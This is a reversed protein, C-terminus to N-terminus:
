GTTFMLLTTLYLSCTFPCLTSSGISTSTSSASSYSTLIIKIFSFYPSYHLIQHMVTFFLVHSFSFSKSFMSFNTPLNSLLTSPFTLHYFSSSFTYFTFNFRFASSNLLLSNGPFYVAFIKNPHSSLFNSSSYKFFKSLFQCLHFDTERSFFSQLPIIDSNHVISEIKNKKLNLNLM